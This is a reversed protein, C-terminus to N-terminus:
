FRYLPPRINVCHCGPQLNESEPQLELTGLQDDLQNNTRAPECQYPLRSTSLDDELVRHGYLHHPWTPEYIINQIVAVVKINTKNFNLDLLQPIQV